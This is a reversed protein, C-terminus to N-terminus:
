KNRKGKIKYMIYMSLLCFFLLLYNRKCLVFNYAASDWSHWSNGKVSFFENGGVCKDLNCVTCDGQFAEKSIVYYSEKRYKQLQNTLFLPGTSNMVHVHKGLMRYQDKYSHLAHMCQLMFPNGRSSMMLSNTFVNSVNMSKVVVLDHKIYKDLPRKVGIDLDMYIGGYHYLVFYRFADIRQIVHPYKVFTERYFTPYERQMFRHIDKDTWFVYQYDPHARLVSQRAREWHEPIEELSKYTQHIIKPIM